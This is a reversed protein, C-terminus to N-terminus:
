EVTDYKEIPQNLFLSAFRGGLKKMGAYNYHGNGMKQYFEKSLPDISQPILTVYPLEQEVQKMGEVVKGYGVQFLIFPLRTDGMDNRIHTVFNRLNNGYEAAATENKTDTEGQVWLFACIEYEDRRYGSLVQKVYTILETYLKPEHEEGMAAAKDESWDSNWCGHLSTAGETRKILLIKEDPWTEALAIGFFLEPGFIFERKYIAGIEEPPKVVDLEGIPEYNFAIQVRGQVKRLRKKDRPTLKKGDARGEMNSQGALIFVKIKRGKEPERLEGSWASCMFISPLSLAFFGSILRQTSNMSYNRVGQM